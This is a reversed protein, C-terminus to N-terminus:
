YRGTLGVFIDEFGPDLSKVDALVSADAGKEQLYAKFADPALRTFISVRQAGTEKNILTTGDATLGQAFPGIPLTYGYFDRLFADRSVNCLVRGRHILVVQDLFDELENVVHSTLLVTARYRDVYDRLFELFLRRYGVDLGLSFDDLILLDAHQALILGLTVQSRQGCSLQAIKRTKPVKMRNVLDWFIASDWRPYFGSYYREVQEITMFNYQIFGEHLLGIRERVTAPLAHSPHGYITCEGSDPQLFGMLLGITTSKGAGNKGLLGVIGGSPITMDIGHLVETQGRSFRLSACVIPSPTSPLAHTLSSEPMLNEEHDHIIITQM